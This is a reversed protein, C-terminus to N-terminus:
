TFWLHLVSDNKRDGGMLKKVNVKLTIMLNIYYYFYHTRGFSM